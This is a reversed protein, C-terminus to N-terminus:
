SAVPLVVVFTGNMEPFSGHPRKWGLFDEALAGVPVLSDPPRSRGWINSIRPYWVDEIRVATVRFDDRYAPDATATFGSMVWSHAGRWVLLGVPRGTLRIARAAVEIARARTPEAVLEYAGAGEISLAATWGVPDAGRGRQLLSQERALAFLREQTPRTTDAPGDSIMNVMTQIAAAVCYVPELESVFDGRRYLDM